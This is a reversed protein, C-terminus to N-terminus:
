ENLLEKMTVEVIAVRSRLSTVIKEGEKMMKWMSSGAVMKEPEKEAILDTNM